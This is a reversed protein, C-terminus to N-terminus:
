RNAYAVLWSRWSGKRLMVTNACSRFDAIDLSFQVAFCVLKKFVDHRACLSHPRQNVPQKCIRTGHVNFTSWKCRYIRGSCQVPRPHIQAENQFFALGFQGVSIQGGDRTIVDLYHLQKLIQYAIRDLVAARINSGTNPNRGFLSVAVPHKADTVVANAHWCLVRVSDEIQEPTQVSTLYRASANAQGYAFSNHLLM